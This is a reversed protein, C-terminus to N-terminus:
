YPLLVTPSVLYVLGFTVVVEGFIIGVNMSQKFFGMSKLVMAMQSAILDLSCLM